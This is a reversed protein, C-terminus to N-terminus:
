TLALPACIDLDEHQCLASSVGQSEQTGNAQDAVQCIGQCEGSVPSAAQHDVAACPGRSYTIGLTSSVAVHPKIGRLDLHLYLLSQVVM